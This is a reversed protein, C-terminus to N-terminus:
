CLQLNLLYNDLENENNFSLKAETSNNFFDIVDLLAEFVRFHIGEFNYIWFVTYKIGQNVIVTEITRNSRLYETNIIKITNM